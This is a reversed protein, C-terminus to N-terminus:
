KGFREYLLEAAMGPGDWKEIIEAFERARRKAEEDHLLKRIAEQVKKSPNKSKNVRIAFGKRVLCALNAVQEPQMGIGVVPKGAYAATMVTGIGGHILSLDALPNVRHAPLWDTVLVNSPIRVGPVKDLHAKVPAIVRYPTGEFSEILNAIIEPTGSSGMAFYIIPRDHPLNRVQEPVPFDERAILPGTYFHDPPLKVGSFEAPEAVLNIQGRWYDFISDYGKVGFHKAAENVSNLFGYRIWFNIFLLVMWDAFPKLPGPVNDTMGAGHAFFDKLWTSQIVWVLPLHLIRCTVPITMYSGTIVATPRLQEVYRVENEVLEITEKKTLAPAFKEGKDVKGFHEIKDPTFRPELRKLPFGAEEVLHELDGGNSIFQLDFAQSAAQHNRIGKAIELMRTTEALDFTVPAFLLIKKAM